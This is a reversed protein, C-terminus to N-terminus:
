DDGERMYPDLLTRLAQRARHLRTKVAAYELGLAGATQATDLGEFDRLILVERYMQPLENVKSRVMDRLEAGEIGSENFPKWPRSPNRQHGDEIFVPLLDDISREPRRRKTRLHMLCANVTIRHLWTSIRSEGEFGAIGKFASLFAEQVADQADAEQELYRRAVALMRGAHLGVVEEFAATDGTRLRDLLRQETARETSFSDTSDLVPMM